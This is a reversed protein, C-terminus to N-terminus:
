VLQKLDYDQNFLVQRCVESDAVSPRFSSKTGGPLLLPGEAPIQLSQWPNQAKPKNGIFKLVIPPICQKLIYKFQSKM